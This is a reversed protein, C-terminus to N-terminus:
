SNNVDKTTAERGEPSENRCSALMLCQNSKVCIEFAVTNFFRVGVGIRM